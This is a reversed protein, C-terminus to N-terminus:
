SARGYFVFGVDPPSFQRPDFSSVFEIPKLLWVSLILRSHAYKRRMGIYWDEASLRLYKAAEAMLAYDRDTLPASGPNNIEPDM